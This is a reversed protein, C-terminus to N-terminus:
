AAVWERVKSINPHRGLASSCANMSLVMLGQIVHLPLALAWGLLAILDKGHIIEFAPLANLSEKFADSEAILEEDSVYAQARSALAQLLAGRDLEAVGRRQRFFRKLSGDALTEQFPLSWNRSLSAIRVESVPRLLLDVQSSIEDSTTKVGGVGIDCLCDLVETDLAYSEIDRGDTTTVRAIHEFGLIRDFDSDVFYHLRDAEPWDATIRALELVRAKNGGADVVLDIEDISYVTGSEREVVPVFLKWLTVDTVGEVFLVRLDTDSMLLQQLDNPTMRMETSQQCLKCLM